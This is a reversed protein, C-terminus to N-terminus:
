AMGCYPITCTSLTAQRLFLCCAVRVYVCACACCIAAASRCHVPLQPVGVCFTRCVGYPLKLRPLAFHPLCPYLCAHYRLLADTYAALELWAYVVAAYTVIRKCMIRHVAFTHRGNYPAQVAHVPSAIFELGGLNMVVMMMVLM